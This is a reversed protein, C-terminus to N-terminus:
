QFLSKLWGGGEKAPATWDRAVLAQIGDNFGAGALAKMRDPAPLQATQELIADIKGRDRVLMLELIDRRREGAKQQTLGLVAIKRAMVTGDYGSLTQSAKAKGLRDRLDAATDSAYKSIQSTWDLAREFEGLRILLDLILNVQTVSQEVSESGGEFQYSYEFAELALRLSQREGLPLDPWFPALALLAQRLDGAHEPAPAGGHGGRGEQDRLVTTQLATVESKLAELRLEIMDGMTLYPAGEPSGAPGLDLARARVDRLSETAEALLDDLRQVAEALAGAAPSPSPSPSGETAAPTSPVEQERFLWALWLALRGLKAHDLRRETSPLITILIAALHTAIAGDLTLEGDPVQERLAELVMRKEISIDGFTRRDAELRLDPPNQDLDEALGAFLCKQCQWVKYHHPVVETVIDHLWRYGTVHRDSERGAVTYLRPNAVPMPVQQQCAPCQIMKTLLPTEAM